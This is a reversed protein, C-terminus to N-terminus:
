PRKYYIVGPSAVTPVAILENDECIDKIHRMLRDQGGGRNWIIQMDLMNGGINKQEVQIAPMKGESMDGIAQDLKELHNRVFGIFKITYREKGIGMEDPRTRVLFDIEDVMALAVNSVAQARAEKESPMPVGNELISRGPLIMKHNLPSEMGSKLRFNFIQKGTQRRVGRCNISATYVTVRHNEPEVTKDVTGWLYLEIKVNNFKRAIYGSQDMHGSLEPFMEIEKKRLDEIGRLDVISMSAGIGNTFDSFLDNSLLLENRGACRDASEPMVAADLGKLLNAAGTYLYKVDQILDDEKIQVRLNVKRNMFIVRNQGVPPRFGTVGNECYERWNETLYDRIDQEHATYVEKGLNRKLYQFMANRWAMSIAKEKSSGKGEATYWRGGTEEEDDGEENAAQDAILAKKAPKLRQTPEDDDDQALLQPIVVVSVILLCALWCFTWKRDIM